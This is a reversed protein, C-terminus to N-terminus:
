GFHLIDFCNPLGCNPLSWGKKIEIGDRSRLSQIPETTRMITLHYPGMLEWMFYGNQAPNMSTQSLKISVVPIYYINVDYALRIKMCLAEVQVPLPGRAYFPKRHHVTSATEM